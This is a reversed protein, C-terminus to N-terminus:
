DNLKSIKKISNTFDKYNLYIRSLDMPVYQIYAIDTIKKYLYGPSTLYAYDLEIEHLDKKLKEISINSKYIKKEVIRTQNKIISTVVILISFILISIILKIKSM